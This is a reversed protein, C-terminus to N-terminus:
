KVRSYRITFLIFGLYGLTLLIYQYSFIASVEIGETIFLSAFLLNVLFIFLSFYFQVKKM